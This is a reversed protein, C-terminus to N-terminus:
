DNSHKEREIDFFALPHWLWDMTSANCKSTILIEKAYVSKHLEGLHIEERVSGLADFLSAFSHFM